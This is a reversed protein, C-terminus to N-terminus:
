FFECSLGLHLGYQQGQTKQGDKGLLLSLARLNALWVIQVKMLTKERNIQTKM